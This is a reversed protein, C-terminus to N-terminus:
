GPELKSRNDEYAPKGTFPYGMLCPLKGGLVPDFGPKLLISYTLYCEYHEARLPPRWQYGHYANTSFTGEPFFFLSQKRRSVTAIRQADLLGKEKDFREVYEPELRDLFLRVTLKNRLEAKAVFSFGQPLAALLAYSDLYSAHNAVYVCTQQLPVNEMGHIDIRTGTSWALFRSFFHIIRWRWSLRPALMVLIWTLFGLLSFMSWAYAAFLSDAVKHRVRRWEPVLSHLLVRLLQLWVAKSTQQLKGEEYLEKCASRRIKGSSTKLVTHPSALV